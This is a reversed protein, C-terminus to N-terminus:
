ADALALCFKWREGFTFSIYHFYACLRHFAEGKTIQLETREWSRNTSTYPIYGTPARQSSTSLRRSIIHDLQRTSRSIQNVRWFYKCVQQSILPLRCARLHFWRPQSSSFSTGCNWTSGRPGVIFSCLPNRKIKSYFTRSTRFTWERSLLIAKKCRVM